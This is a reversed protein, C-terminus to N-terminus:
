VVPAHECPSKYACNAHTYIHQIHQIHQLVGLEFKCYLKQVRILLVIATARLVCHSGCCGRKAFVQLPTIPLLQAFSAWCGRHLFLVPDECLHGVRQDIVNVM